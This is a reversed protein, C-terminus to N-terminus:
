AEVWGGRGGQPAISNAHSHLRSRCTISSLSIIRDISFCTTAPRLKKCLASGGMMCWSSRETFIRKSLLQRACRVSKWCSTTRPELEFVERTRSPTKLALM